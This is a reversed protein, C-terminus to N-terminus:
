TRQCLPSLQEEPVRRMLDIAEDDKGEISLLDGYAEIVRTNEPSIRRAIELDDRAEVNENLLVRTRSRNLLADVKMSTSDREDARELAQGFAYGAERLRESSTDTKRHRLRKAIESQAIIQGLLLWPTPSQTGADTTARILREADELEGADLAHEALAVAM